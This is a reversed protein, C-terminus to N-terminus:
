VRLAAGSTRGGALQVEEDIRMRVLVQPLVPVCRQVPEKGRVRHRM